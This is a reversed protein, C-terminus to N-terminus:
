KTPIRKAEGKARILKRAATQKETRRAGGAQGRCAPCFTVLKAAPHVPCPDPM